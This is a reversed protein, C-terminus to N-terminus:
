RSCCHSSFRKVASPLSQMLFRVRRCRIAGPNQDATGKRQVRKPKPKGTLRVNDLEQGAFRLAPRIKHRSALSEPPRVRDFVLSDAVLVAARGIANLEARLSEAQFLHKLSRELRRRRQHCPLAGPLLSSQRHRVGPLQADQRECARRTEIRVYVGRSRRSSLAFAAGHLLDAQGGGGLGGICGTIKMTRDACVEALGWRGADIGCPGAM